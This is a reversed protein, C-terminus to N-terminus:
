CGHNSVRTGCIVCYWNNNFERECSIIGESRKSLQLEIVSLNRSQNWEEFFRKSKEKAISLDHIAEHACSGVCPEFGGLWLVPPDDSDKPWAALKLIATAEDIIM